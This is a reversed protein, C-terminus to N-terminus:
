DQHLKHRPRMVRVNREGEDDSVLTSYSSHFLRQPASTPHFRSAFNKKKQTALFLNSYHIAKRVAGSDDVPKKPSLSDNMEKFAQEALYCCAYINHKQEALESLLQEAIKLYKDSDPAQNSTKLINILARADNQLFYEILQSTFSHSLHEMTLLSQFLKKM